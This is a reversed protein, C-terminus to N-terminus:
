PVLQLSEPIGGPEQGCAGPSPTRKVRQGALNMSEVMFDRTVSLIPEELTDFVGKLKNRSEIIISKFEDLKENRLQLEATKQDLEMSCELQPRLDHVVAMIHPEVDLSLPTFSVMCPLAEGELNRYTWEFEQFEGDLAKQQYEKGAEASPRGDPQFEPSLKEHSSGMLEPRPIPFCSSAATM